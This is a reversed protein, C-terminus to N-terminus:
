FNILPLEDVLGKEDDYARAIYLGQLVTSKEIVGEEELKEAVHRYVSVTFRQAQRLIGRLEKKDSIQEIQAIIQGGRGYPVLVTYGEDAITQYEVGATLFAQRLVHGSSAGKFGTSLLRYITEGKYKDKLNFDMETNLEEYLIEYYQQMWKPFIINEQKESREYRYAIEKTKKQGVSLEDMGRGPEDGELEFVIVKGKDREGNRNCRGAAQAISDLGALSRFVCEVSLDVGAEILSTSIVLMRREKDHLCQKIKRIYDSRHEACLNTTLYFIDVDTLTEKVRDYLDAVTQKKNLVVLISQVDAFSQVVTQELSELTEKKEFFTYSIQARDFQMFKKDIDCVMDKPNSYLIRRKVTEADLAPQTATCLIVTAQCVRHLFNMMLNFTHVTKVPLSQVEDVIIIARKLQHFRRISKKRDSFLTNLFQVMTTCIIMQEKWAPDVQDKRDDSRSLNSHHELVWEERGVADMIVRANQETISIYPSIYFIHSVENERGVNEAAFKLAYGLSTLTKGAGTPIPLRYIGPGKEVFDMCEKQIQDRLKNIEKQQGTVSKSASKKQLKEMYCLYNEWAQSYYAGANATSETLEGMAEATDTWDSDIQVSLLLRVFCAAYFQMSHHKCELGAIPRLFANVFEQYATVAQMKLDGEDRKMDASWRAFLRDTEQREESELRATFIDEGNSNVSDYLGHHASIAYSMMEVMMKADPNGTQGYHNELFEAGASSHNVTGRAQKGEEDTLYAQFKDSYKGMDHLLAILETIHGIGIQAGAAKAKAAAGEMHSRLLQVKEGEKHALYEM